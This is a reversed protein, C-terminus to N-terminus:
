VAAHATCALSRVKGAYGSRSTENQGCGAMLDGEMRGAFIVHPKKRAFPFEEDFNDLFQHM